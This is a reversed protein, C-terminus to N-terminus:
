ADGFVRELGLPGKREGAARALSAVDVRGRPVRGIFREATQCVVLGAGVRDLYDPDWGFPVWAFHVERFAQALFWALGTYADDGFGYSDGFVVVTRGDPADDRRFVRLTGIHGGQELVTSWNDSVIRAMSPTVLREGIELVHPQFHRGLDGSMLHQARTDAVTELLEVSAGLAAIAAGALLRNGRATLHSDTAMYTDGRARAERLPMDPYLLPVSEEGVLRTMPRPRGERPELDLPFLDGYVALKDPVVLFCVPRGAARAHVSREEVLERWRASWDRELAVEGRHM